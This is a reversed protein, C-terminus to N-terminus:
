RSYSGVHECHTGIKCQTLNYPESMPVVVRLCAEMVKSLSIQYEGSLDADSRTRVLLAIAILSWITLTFM